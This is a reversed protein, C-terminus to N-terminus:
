AWTGTSFWCCTTETHFQVELPRVTAEVRGLWDSKLEAKLQYRGFGQIASGEWVGLIEKIDPKKVPTAPPVPLPPAASTAAACAVPAFIDATLRPTGNDPCKPAEASAFAPLLVLVLLSKM